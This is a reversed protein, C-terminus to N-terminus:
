RQLPIHNEIAPDFLCDLPGLNAIPMTPIEAAQVDRILSIKFWRDGDRHMQSKLVKVEVWSSGIQGVRATLKGTGPYTFDITKGTQLAESLLTNIEFAPTM